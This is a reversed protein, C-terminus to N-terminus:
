LTLLRTNWFELRRQYHLASRPHGTLQHCPSMSQSHEKLDKDIVIANYPMSTEMYMRERSDRDIVIANYPMSPEMYM